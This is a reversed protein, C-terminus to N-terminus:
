GKMGRGINVQGAMGVAVSVKPTGGRRQDLRGLARCLMRQCRELLPVLENQLQAIRQELQECRVEGYSLASNV